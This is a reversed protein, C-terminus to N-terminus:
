SSGGVPAARLWAGLTAVRWLTVADRPDAVRVYRELVARLADLDVYPAIVEAERALVGGLRVPGVQGLAHPLIPRLDAKGKRWRIEEPLIGATAARLVVRTLGGSLKQDGPLALAFEILRSDLFPHRPEISFRAAVRSVTEIAHTVVPSDIRRWHDHRATKIGDLWTDRPVDWREKLCV